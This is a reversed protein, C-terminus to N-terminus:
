KNNEEKRQMTQQPLGEQREMSEPVRCKTPLVKGKKGQKEEERQEAIQLDEKSLWKSKKLINQKSGGTHYQLGIDM